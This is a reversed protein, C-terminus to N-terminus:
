MFYQMFRGPEAADLLQESSALAQIPRSFLLADGLCTQM